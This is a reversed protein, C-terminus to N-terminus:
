YDSNKLRSSWMVIKCFSFIFKTTQKLVLNQWTAWAPRLRTEAKQASWNGPMCCWVWDSFSYRTGGRGFSDKKINTNPLLCTCFHSQRRQLLGSVIFHWLSPVWVGSVLIQVAKFVPFGLLLHLLIPKRQPGDMQSTVEECLWAKTSRPEWRILFVLNSYLM